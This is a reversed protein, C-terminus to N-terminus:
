SNTGAFPTAKGVDSDTIAQALTIPTSVGYVRFNKVYVNMFSSYVWLEITDGDAFSLDESFTVYSNSNDNRETGVAGGNKYIKGWGAINNCKYDFKIRTTSPTRNLTNITIIKKANLGENSAHYEADHSHLLDDSIVYKNLLGHVGTDLAAHTSIDSDIEAQLDTITKATPGLSMKYTAGATNKTSASSGEQNRSVTLTDTSKATVRVIEVNPDDAPDAYNTSDWWFLNYNDGSPDPLEAGEGASLVISTAAANYGISVTVKKFNAVQDTM